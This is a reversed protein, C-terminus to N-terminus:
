KGEFVAINEEIGKDREYRQKRKEKWRGEGGGEKFCNM